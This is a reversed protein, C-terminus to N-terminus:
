GFRVNPPTINRLHTACWERGSSQAFYLNRYNIWCAALWASKTKHAVDKMERLLRLHVNLEADKDTLPIKFTKLHRGSTKLFLPLLREIIFVVYTAGHHKARQDAEPSHLLARMERPMRSDSLGMVRRVFALYLTWFKQSGVFYNAASFMQSAEVTILDDEPLGAAAFVARAVELFRPHCTEGQLWMNHFLAENEPHPNCYYLDFGPNAAITDRLMDGTLGTKEGFRWSLAGWLPVDKLAASAALRNFVDVELYESVVGCNDLQEFAPDLLEIQWPEYYIQFIRLAESEHRNSTAGIDMRVQTRDPRTISIAANGGSRQRAAFATRRPSPSPTPTPIPKPLPPPEFVAQTLLAPSMGSKARRRRPSSATAPAELPPSQPPVPPALPPAAAQSHDDRTSARSVTTAPQPSTPLAPPPSETEAALGKELAILKTPGCKPQKLGLKKSSGQTM